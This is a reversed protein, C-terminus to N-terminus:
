AARSVRRPGMVPPTTHETPAPGAGDIRSKGGVLAQLRAVVGM